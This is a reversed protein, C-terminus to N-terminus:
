WRLIEGHYNERDPSHFLSSVCTLLKARTGETPIICCCYYHRSVKPPLSMLTTSTGRYTQNQSHRMMISRMLFTFHGVSPVFARDGRMAAQDRTHKCTSRGFLDFMASVDQIGIFKLQNKLDNLSTNVPTGPFHISVLIILLSTEPVIIASAPDSGDVHVYRLGAM